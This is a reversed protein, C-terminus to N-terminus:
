LTQFKIVNEHKVFGKKDQGLVSEPFYNLNFLRSRKRKSRPTVATKRQVPLTVIYM